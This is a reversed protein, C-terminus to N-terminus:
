WMQTARVIYRAERPAEVSVRVYTLKELAADITISPGGGQVAYPEQVQLPRPATYKCDIHKPPDALCDTAEWWAKVGDDGVATIEIMGNNRADVYVPSDGPAYDHHMLIRHYYRERWTMTEDDVFQSQAPKEKNLMETRVDMSAGIYMGAIGSIVVAVCLLVYYGEDKM